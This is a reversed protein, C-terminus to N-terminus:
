RSIGILESERGIYKKLEKKVKNKKIKSKIASPFDSKKYTVEGVRVGIKFGTDAVSLSSEEIVLFVIKNKNFLKSPKEFILYEPNGKKDLEISQIKLSLSGYKYFLQEIQKGLVSLAGKFASEKTTYRNWISTTAIKRETKKYNFDQPSSFDSTMIFGYKISCSFGKDKGKDDLGLHKFLINSVLVSFREKNQNIMYNEKVTSSFRKTSLVSSMVSKEIDMINDNRCDKCLKELSNVRVKISSSGFFPVNEANFYLSNLILEPADEKNWDGAKELAKTKEKHQAVMNETVYTSSVTKYNRNKFSSVRWGNDTEELSITGNAVIRQGKSIKKTDSVMYADWGQPQKTMYGFTKSFGDSYVSMMDSVFIDQIPELLLEYEIEYIKQGYVERKVGNKKSVDIFKLAARDKQSFYRKFYNSLITINVSSQTNNTNMQAGAFTEKEMKLVEAMQYVFLSGDSTEIKLNSSPNMETIKGKIVSGNKLYVVDRTQTQSFLQTSLLCLLILIYKKM